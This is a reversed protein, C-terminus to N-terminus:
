FVTWTKDADQLPNQLQNNGRAAYKEVLIVGNHDWVVTITAKNASPPIKSNKRGPLNLITSNHPNGGQKQL